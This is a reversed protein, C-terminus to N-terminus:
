IMLLAVNSSYWTALPFPLTPFFNETLPFNWLSAFNYNSSGISTANPRFLELTYNAWETSISSRITQRMSIGISEREILIMISKTM